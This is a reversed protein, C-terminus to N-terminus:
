PISVPSPFIRSYGNWLLAVTELIAMPYFIWRATPWVRAPLRNCIRDLLTEAQPLPPPEDSSARWKASLWTGRVNSLLLGLFIISVVGLGGLLNALLYNSFVMVAAFKSAQRVGLGALLLYVVDFLILANRTMAFGAVFTFGALVCCLWFGQQSIYDADYAHRIEPWFLAKLRNEPKPTSEALGLTQM